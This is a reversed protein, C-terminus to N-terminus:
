PNLRLLRCANLHQVSAWIAKDEDLRFAVLWALAGTGGAIGLM